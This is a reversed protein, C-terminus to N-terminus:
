EVGVQFVYFQVSTEENRQVNRTLGVDYIAGKRAFIELWWEAPRVTAHVKLDQLHDPKQLRDPDDLPSATSCITCVIYRSSVRVLERVAIEVDEIPIHELVEICSVLDFSSDEHPIHTISAEKVLGKRKLDKLRNEIIWNSYEIAQVKQELRLLRRMLNGPGCGIDLICQPGFLTILKDAFTERLFSRKGRYWNSWYADYLEKYRNDLM